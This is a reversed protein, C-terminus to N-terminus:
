NRASNCIYNPSIELITRNLNVNGASALSEERQTTIKARIPEREAM